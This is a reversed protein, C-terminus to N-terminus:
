WRIIRNTDPRLLKMLRGLEDPTWWARVKDAWIDRYEVRYTTDCETKIDVVQRDLSDKFSRYITTDCEIKYLTIVTDIEGTKYRPVKPEPQWDHWVLNGGVLNSATLGTAVISDDVADMLVSAAGLTLTDVGVATEHEFVVGAQIPLAIMACSLLFALTKM